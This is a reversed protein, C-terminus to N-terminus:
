GRVAAHLIATEPTAEGSNMANIANEVILKLVSSQPDPFPPSPMPGMPGTMGLLRCRRDTATSSRGPFRIRLGGLPLPALCSQRAPPGSAPRMGAETVPAPPTRPHRSADPSSAAPGQPTPRHQRRAHIRDPKTSNSGYGSPAAPSGPLPKTRGVAVRERFWIMRLTVKQLPVHAPRHHTRSTQCARRAAVTTM